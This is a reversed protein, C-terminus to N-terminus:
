HQFNNFFSTDETNMFRILDPYGSYYVRQPEVMKSCPCIKEPITRLPYGSTDKLDYVKIDSFKNVVNGQECACELNYSKANMDYSVKYIQENKENKAYVTYVGNLQNNNRARYCRSTERIYKQVITSQILKIALVVVVIIIIFLLLERFTPLLQMFFGLFGQKLNLLTNNMGGAASPETSLTKSKLLGAVISNQVPPEKMIDVVKGYTGPVDQLDALSGSKTKSLGSLISKGRKITDLLPGGGPIKRDKM